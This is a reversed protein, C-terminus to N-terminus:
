RRASQTFYGDLGLEGTRALPLVHDRTLPALPQTPEGWPDIWILEAIEAGAIAVGPLPVLFLEAEVTCGPENAAMASFRGLYRVADPEVSLSIEEQLERRLAAFPNEADEIKGGAQMFCSTGAKRVLLLQGREDKIVAAAIRIPDASSCDM